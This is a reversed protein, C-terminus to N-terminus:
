HSSVCVCLELLFVCTYRIVYMRIVYMRRILYMRIVYMRRILYMRIVYVYSTDFVCVVYRIYHLRTLVGSYYFLICGSSVKCSVVYIRM